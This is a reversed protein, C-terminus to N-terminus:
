QPSSTQPKDTWLSDKTHPDSPCDKPFIKISIIWKIDQEAWHVRRIQRSCLKTGLGVDLGWGVAVEWWNRGWNDNVMKFMITNEVKVAKENKM